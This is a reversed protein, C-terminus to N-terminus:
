SCDNLYFNITKSISDNINTYVQLGLEKRVKDISPFYVSEDSDSPSKVKVCRGQGVILNALEKISVPIDSGVNYTARNEGSLLLTLLWIVLDSGYLYSRISKGNSSIIIDNENLRDNIFNGFAFSGNLPLYPGSFSFCRAIVVDCSAHEKLYREARSKSLGYSSAEEDFEGEVFSEIIGQSVDKAVRGYAAGSSTFLLRKCKVAKAFDVIKTVGDLITSRTEKVNSALFPKSAVDTAAHIIYDFQTELSPINRVDGSIFSVGKANALHPYEISFRNPNRTLVTAELELEYNSNLHNIAELLWKGFFGTGGTIFVKKKKFKPLVSSLKNAILELDAEEVRRTEIM